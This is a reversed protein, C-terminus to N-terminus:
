YLRGDEITALTYSLRDFRRNVRAELEAFEARRDIPVSIGTPLSCAFDQLAALDAGLAAIENDLTATNTGHQVISM